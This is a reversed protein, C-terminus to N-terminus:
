PQVETSAFDPGNSCEVARSEEATLARLNEPRVQWFDLGDTLEWWLGPNMRGRRRVTRVFMGVRRPNSPSAVPNEFWQGFTPRM